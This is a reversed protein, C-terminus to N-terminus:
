FRIAAKIVAMIFLVERERERTERRGQRKTKMLADIFSVGIHVCVCVCVSLTHPPDWHHFLVTNIATLSFQPWLGLIGVSIVLCIEPCPLSVSVPPPRPRPTTMWVDSRQEDKFMSHIKKKFHVHLTTMWRGTCTHCSLMCVRLYSGCPLLESQMVIHFNPEQRHHPFDGRAGQPVISQLWKTGIESREPSSFWHSKFCCTSGNINNPVFAEGLSM